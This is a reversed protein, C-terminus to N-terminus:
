PLENLAYAVADALRSARAGVKTGAARTALDRLKADLGKKPSKKQLPELLKELETERAKEVQFEESELAAAVEAAEKEWEPRGTAARVLEQAAEQSRSPEGQELHHSVSRRVAEFRGEIERAAEGQEGEPADGLMTRAVGLQGGGFAAARASRALGDDGWGNKKRDLEAMVLKKVESSNGYSGAYRVTGDVGVLVLRPPPGSSDDYSVHLDQNRILRSSTGPLEALQLARLYTEDHNKIEMLIVVLGEEAHKEELKGGLRAAETGAFVTSLWAIIVPQGRFESLKLRGDGGLMSKFAIDPLRGGVSVKEPSVRETGVPAALLALTGVLAALQM